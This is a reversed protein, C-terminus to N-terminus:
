CKHVVGGGRHVLGGDDRELSADSGGLLLQGHELGPEGRALLPPTAQGTGAPQFRRPVRPGDAYESLNRAIRVNRKGRATGTQATRDENALGVVATVSADGGKGGGREGQLREDVLM